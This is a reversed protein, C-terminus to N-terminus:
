LVSCSCHIRPPRWVCRSFLGVDRYGARKGPDRRRGRLAGEDHPARAPALVGPSRGPRGGAPGLRALVEPFSDSLILWSRVPSGLREPTWRFPAAGRDWFIQRRVTSNRAGETPHGCCRTGRRWTPSAGGLAVKSGAVPGRPILGTSRACARFTQSSAPNPVSRFEADRAM